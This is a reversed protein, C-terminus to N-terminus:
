QYRLVVAPDVRTARLAPIWAAVAAVLTLVATMVLVTAPDTASVNFLVNSLARASGLTVLLGAALGIGVTLMIGRVMAWVVLTGRAGLALRIGVEKTRERVAFAVVAYLGLAALVLATLSFGALVSAALRPVLLQQDVSDNVTVLQMIPLKSDYGRVVRGITATLDSPNGSTRVIFSAIPFGTQDWPRYLQPRPNETLSEVKINAVVGVIEVWSDPAGDYGFRRGVVDATGWYRQAMAENVVAVRPASNDDQPRFTRGHLMRVGLGEFFGPTVVASPVEATNTGTPSIYGEIVLTNTPGRGLPPRSTRVVSQVGPLATLRSELESYVLRSDSAQYGAQAANTTVLALAASNFGLDVQAMQMTSRIVLGTGTLLVISLAVQFSVMAYRLAVHHRLASAGALVNAADTKLARVAPALGFAVGTLISLAIAFALVTVDVSLTVLGAAAPLDTASVVRLLWVAALCGVAGGAMSLVLSESLFQRLIRGRGAGMAMRISVERHQSAGRLLLMIALNSCVLALVLGVVAMLLTAAPVLVRDFAPHIRIARAPLVEIRRTQDLGAFRTGLETSVSDMAARAQAMTVGDRLRARILFWHDQPRDLMQVFFSGQVPGIASLSLWFDVAVGSAFGNYAAPGIGVITVPSGGLRVARGVIGPDSGFRTRWAHDSVVAVPGATPVDEDAAIWRGRAVNLGLVPFYSSTAVEVLSQRMGFDTEVNVTTYYMASAGSFVDTRSAIAEYAPFSSSQPQGEDSHQYVHVVRAPDAFPLPRLLFANVASFVVTNAAIGLGIILVAMVTFLPSAALRRLGYRVDQILLDMWVGM